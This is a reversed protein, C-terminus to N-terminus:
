NPDPSLNQMGPLAPRHSTDTKVELGKAEILQYLTDYTYHSVPDVCPNNNLHAAGEIELVNGVPDYIYTLKQVAVGNASTALLENLRGTHPDYAYRSIVGNGATEQEIQALASYRIKSVLVQLKVAGPQKLEVTNL